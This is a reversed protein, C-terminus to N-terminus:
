LNKFLPRPITQRSCKTHLFINRINYEILRGFKIGQNGKSRKFGLKINELFKINNNISLTVILVYLKSSTIQFIAGSITTAASAPVPPNAHLNTAIPIKRSIESIICNRSWSLDLEVACNVLSM